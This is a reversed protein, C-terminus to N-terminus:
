PTVLQCTGPQFHPLKGTFEVPTHRLEVQALKELLERSLAEELEKRVDSLKKTGPRVADCRILHVGFPTKM